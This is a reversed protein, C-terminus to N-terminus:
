QCVAGATRLPCNARLETEDPGNSGELTDQPATDPTLSAVRCSGPAFHVSWRTFTHLVSVKSVHHFCSATVEGVVGHGIGMRSTQLDLTCDADNYGSGPIQALAKAVNKLCPDATDAYSSLTMFALGIVSLSLMLKTM